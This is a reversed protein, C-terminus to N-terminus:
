DINNATLSSPIDSFLSHSHSLIRNYLIVKWSLTKTVVLTLSNTISESENEIVRTITIKYESKEILM